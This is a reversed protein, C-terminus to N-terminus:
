AHQRLSERVSIPENYFADKRAALQALTYAGVAMVLDRVAVDFYGALAASLGVAVLWIMVVVAGSRPLITLVALGALMEIIGVVAMFMGPSMPLLHAVAPPLYKEWNTLLNFFKDLGALFPVLGYTFRLLQYTRSLSSEDHLNPTQTQM